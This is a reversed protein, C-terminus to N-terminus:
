GYINISEAKWCKIYRLMNKCLPSKVKIRIISYSCLYYSFQYIDVILLPYASGNQTFCFNITMSLLERQALKVKMDKNGAEENTQTITIIIRGRMHMCSLKCLIFYIFQGCVTLQFTQVQPHRSTCSKPLNEGMYTFQYEPLKRVDKKQKDRRM